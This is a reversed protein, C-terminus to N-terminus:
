HSEANDQAILAQAIPTIQSIEASRAKQATAGSTLLADTLIDGQMGTPRVGM